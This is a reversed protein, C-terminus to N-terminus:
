YPLLFIIALVELLCLTLFGNM